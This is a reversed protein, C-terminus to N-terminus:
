SRRIKFHVSIETLCTATLLERRQFQAAGLPCPRVLMFETSQTIQSEFLSWATYLADEADPRPVSMAQVVRVLFLLLRNFRSDHLIRNRAETPACM